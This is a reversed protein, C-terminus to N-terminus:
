DCVGPLLTVGPLAMAARLRSAVVGVGLTVPVALRALVVAADCVVVDLREAEVEDMDDLVERM